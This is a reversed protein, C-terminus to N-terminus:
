AVRQEAGATGDEYRRRLSEIQSSDYRQGVTQRDNKLGHALAELFLIRRNHSDVQNKREGIAERLQARTMATLLVYGARTHERWLITREEGEEAGAHMVGNNSQGSHKRTMALVARIQESIIPYIQQKLFQPDHGFKVTAEEALDALKVPKGNSQSLRQKTWEVLPKYM